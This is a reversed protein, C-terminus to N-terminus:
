LNDIAKARLHGRVVSAKSIAIMVIQYIYVPTSQSHERAEKM